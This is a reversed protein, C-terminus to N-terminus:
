RILGYVHRSGLAHQNINTASWTSTVCVTLRSEEARQANFPGRRLRHLLESSCANQLFTMVGFEDELVVCKDIKM